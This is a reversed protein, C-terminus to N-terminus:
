RRHDLTGDPSKFSIRAPEVRELTNLLIVVLSLWVAPLAGSGQGTGFLPEFPTGKYSDRSVGHVTKVTYQMLELAKAHSRIANLPMGCRRAALMALAVIIRDFCASADNYFRIYNIRLLRCLDTTIQNLMIPDMPTRGPVSGHQGDNLLDLAVAKRVLRSGWMIKLFLNYDAEFLHIIRLRNLRPRGQDKETMVNVANGWWKVAIGQSIAIIMFKQFCSLLLPDQILAKYHGLHRGSPSTSTSEKWSKFGKTIDDESIETPIPDAALVSDPIQFSALFERLLDNDKTWEEPIIGALLEESEQSM